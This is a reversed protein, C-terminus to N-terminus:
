KTNCQLVDPSSTQNKHKVLGRTCATPKLIAYFVQIQM